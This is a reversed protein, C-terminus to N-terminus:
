RRIGSFEAETLLMKARRKESHAKRAMENPHRPVFLFLFPVHLRIAGRGIQTTYIYAPCPTTDVASACRAKVGSGLCSLGRLPLAFAKSASHSSRGVFGSVDQMLEFLNGEMFEFVFFLEDNERIVEKLKVINPHSLKKLSKVERLQM